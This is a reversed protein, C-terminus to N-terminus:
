SKKRWKASSVAVILRSNNFIFFLIQKKSPELLAPVKYENTLRTNIGPSVM